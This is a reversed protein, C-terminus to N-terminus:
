SRYPVVGSWLGAILKYAWGAALLGVVMLAIRVPTLRQPNLRLTRGTVLVSLSIGVATLTALFLLFGAPQAHFSRLWQGRVGHAFATTMGCTPCPYGILVVMTCPPTGKLLQQHTGIGTASPELRRAVALM